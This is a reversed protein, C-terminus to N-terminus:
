KNARQHLAAAMEEGTNKVMATFEGDVKSLLEKPSDYELVKGDGLVLIRDYDIITDLRHAVSIITTKPFSTSLTKQLLQCTQGDVDATPEDLIMIAKEDLLARALSLLQGQGKSFNAGGDMVITDIGQPLIQITDLMGVKDLADSVNKDNFQGILDLNERITFGCFLTPSQQIISM